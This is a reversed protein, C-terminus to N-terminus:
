WHSYGRYVQLLWFSVGLDLYSFFNVIELLNGKFIFQLNLQLIGGKRFVTIKTKKLTFVNCEFHDYLCSNFM